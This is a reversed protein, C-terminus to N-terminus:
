TTTSKGCVIVASPGSTSAGWTRDNMELHDRRVGHHPLAREGCTEEGGSPLIAWGIRGRSPLSRTFVVVTSVASRPRDGRPARIRKRMSPGCPLMIWEVTGPTIIKIAQIETHAGKNGVTDMLWAAKLVLLRAQELRVRSEAIWDQIMQKEALISGHVYRSLARECLMDFARRSQGLWRM